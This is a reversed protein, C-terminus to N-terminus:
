PLRAPTNSRGLLYDTSVNFFDALALLASTTPEREGSVYRHYATQSIGTPKFVDRRGLRRQAQLESLREAFSM